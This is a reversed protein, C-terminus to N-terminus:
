RNSANRGWKKMHWNRNGLNYQLPYDKLLKTAINKSNFCLWRMCESNSICNKILLFYDELAQEHASKSFLNCRNCKWGSHVREMGLRGCEPCFVGPLLDKLKISFKKMIDMDFENCEKLIMNGIKRDQIKNVSQESLQQENEMIMSPIRAAHAVVKGLAETDGNVKIITSPESIVVFYYIPINPLNHQSLWNLLHFRQNQVQTIPYEFGKEVKGDSRTMQKLTTDFTITDNYNKSDVIYIAQQSLILSDIQVNKGNVRLYVDQLITCNTALYDLYYDVKLEGSFGKQQIAAAEKMAKLQPFDTPLRPIAADLKRLPLPKTRKRINM